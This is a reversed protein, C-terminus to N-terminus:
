RTEGEEYPHVELLRAAQLGHDILSRGCGCGHDGERPQQRLRIYMTRCKGTKRCCGYCKLTASGRKPSRTLWLEERHEPWQLFLTGELADHWQVRYDCCDGNRWIIFGRPAALIADLDHHEIEFLRDAKAVIPSPRAELAPAQSTDRHRAPFQLITAQTM